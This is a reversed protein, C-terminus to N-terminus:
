PLYSFVWTHLRFFNLTNPPMLSSFMVSSKDLHSQPSFTRKRNCDTSTLRQWILKVSAYIKSCRSLLHGSLSLKPISCWFVFMKYFPKNHKKRHSYHKPFHSRTVHHPWQSDEEELGLPRLFSKLLSVNVSFCLISSCINGQLNMLIPSHKCFSRVLSETFEHPSVNLPFILWWM